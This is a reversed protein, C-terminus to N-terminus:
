AVVSASPRNRNAWTGAPSVIRVTWAGPMRRVQLLDDHHRAECRDLEAEFLPRVIRPRTTSRWPWGSAPAVTATLKQRLDGSARSAFLSRRRPRTGSPDRGARHTEIPEQM